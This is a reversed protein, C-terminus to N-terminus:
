PQAVRTVHTSVARWRGDRKVFVDTFAYDGGIDMGKYTGKDKSRGSVVATDGYVSVKLDSHTTSDFKLAGSRLEENADKRSVRQGMPDTLVWDDAVINDIKGIDAAVLAAAWEREMQLISTTVPDPAPAPEKVEVVLGRLVSKGRNVASHAGAELWTVQGPLFDAEMPQGGEPTIALKGPSLVYVLHNPHSHVGISAGPKFTIECVRVHANDLICKYVDPGVKVPDQAFLPISLLFVVLLAKRM